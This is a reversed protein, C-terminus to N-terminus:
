VSSDRITNMSEGCGPMDVQSLHPLVSKKGDELSAAITHECEWCVAFGYRAYELRQQKGCHGCQGTTFIGTDM